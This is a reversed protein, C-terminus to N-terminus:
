FFLLLFLSVSLFLCVFSVSLPLEVEQDSLLSHLRISLQLHVLGWEGVVVVVVLVLLEPARQHLPTAGSLLTGGVHGRSLGRSLRAQGREPHPDVEKRDSGQSLDIFCSLCVQAMLNFWQLSGSGHNFLGGVQIGGSTHGIRVCTPGLISM